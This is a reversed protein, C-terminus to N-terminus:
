LAMLHAVWTDIFAQVGRTLLDFERLEDVADHSIWEAVRAHVRLGSNQALGRGALSLVM